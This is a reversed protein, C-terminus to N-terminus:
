MDINMMKKTYNHSKALSYLHTYRISNFVNLRESNRDFGQRIERGTEM